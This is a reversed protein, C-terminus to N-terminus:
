PSLEAPTSENAVAVNTASASLIFARRVRVGGFEFPAVEMPLPHAAAWDALTAVTPDTTEMPVIRSLLLMEQASFVEGLLKALYRMGELRARDLWSASVVFDWADSAADERLFLGAFVLGGRDKEATRVVGVFRQLVDSM